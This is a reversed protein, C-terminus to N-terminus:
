VNSLTLIFTAKLLTIIIICSGFTMLHRITWSLLPFQNHLSKLMELHYLFYRLYWTPVQPIKTDICLEESKVYEGEPIQKPDRLVPESIAIKSPRLTTYRGSQETETATIFGRLDRMLLSLSEDTFQGNNNLFAM